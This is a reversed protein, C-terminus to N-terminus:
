QRGDVKQELLKEIEAPSALSGKYVSVVKGQRDILVCASYGVGYREATKGDDIVVPFKIGDDALEEAVDQRTANAFVGVIALGQKGYTEHFALLPPVLSMFARQRLDFLVLLVPKGRLSKLTPQKDTNLWVDGSLEPAPGGGLKKMALRAALAPDDKARRNFEDALLWAQQRSSVLLEGDDEVFWEGYYKKGFGGGAGGGHERVELDTHFLRVICDAYLLKWDRAPGASVTVWSDTVQGGLSWEGNKGSFGHFRDSDRTPIPLEPGHDEDTKRERRCYLRGFQAEGAGLTSFDRIFYRGDRYDLRLADIKSADIRPEEDGVVKALVIKWEVQDDDTRREAVIWGEEVWVRWWGIRKDPDPTKIPMIRSWTASIKETDKASATQPEAAILARHAGGIILLAAILLFWRPPSPQLRQPITM